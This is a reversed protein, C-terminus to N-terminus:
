DRPSPSTYLLCINARQLAHQTTTQLAELRELYDALVGLPAQLAAQELQSAQDAIAICGLSSAAGKLSHAEQCLAERNDLQWYADFRANRESLRNLFISLLSNLAAPDFAGKLETCIREDLIHDQYSIAALSDFKQHGGEDLDASIM